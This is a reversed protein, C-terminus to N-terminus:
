ARKFYHPDGLTPISITMTEKGGGEKSLNAHLPEAPLQFIKSVVWVGSQAVGTKVFRDGVQIPPKRM